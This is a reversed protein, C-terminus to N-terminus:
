MYKVLHYDIQDDNPHYTVYMTYVMETGVYKAYPIRGNSTITIDISIQISVLDILCHYIQIETLLRLPCQFVECLLEFSTKQQISSNFNAIIFHLLIKILNWRM